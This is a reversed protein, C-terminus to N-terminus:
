GCDRNTWWRFRSSTNLDKLKATEMLEAGFFAEQMYSPFCESLKTKPKRRQPKRRPPKNGVNDDLADLQHQEAEDDRDGKRTGRLRVVFGGIGLKQLNRQRKRRLVNLGNETTYLSFGEPPSHDTWVMGEKYFELNDELFDLSTVGGSGNEEFSNDLSGGAIVSEITAMIDDKDKPAVTPMALGMPGPIGGPVMKKRKKRTIQTETLLSKIHHMGSESLLVGDILFSQSAPKYTQM